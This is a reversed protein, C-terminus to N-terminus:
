HAAQQAVADGHPRVPDTAATRCDQASGNKSGGIKGGGAQGGGAQVGSAAKRADPAAGGEEAQALCSPAFRGEPAAGDELEESGSGCAAAALAAIDPVSRGTGNAPSLCGTPNTPTAVEMGTPSAGSTPTSGFAEPNLGGRLLEQLTAPAAAEPSAPSHAQLLAAASTQAVAPAAVPSAPAAAAAAAVPQPLERTLDVVECQTAAPQQQQLQQAAQQAPAAPTGGGNAAAPRTAMPPKGEGAATAAPDAAAWVAPAPAPVPTITPAGLAPLPAPAATLGGGALVPTSLPDGNPSGHGAFTVGGALAAAPVPLKGGLLRRCSNQCAEHNFHM